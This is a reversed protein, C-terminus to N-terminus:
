QSERSSEKAWKVLRKITEPRSFKVTSGRRGFGPRYGKRRGFVCDAPFRPTCLRQYARLFRDYEWAYMEFTEDPFIERLHKRNVVGWHRGYGVAIQDQKVKTSHDQLYRLWSGKVHQYEDHQMDVMHRDAGKLQSPLCNQDKWEVPGVVSDLAAGFYKGGGGVCPHKIGCVGWAGDSMPATYMIAHWHVSGRAQIEMRWILTLPFRQLKRCFEKWVTRIVEPDQVPGPITYTCGFVDWGVPPRNQLLLLRFRRRSAKSFGKIKGRKASAFQETFTPVIKPSPARMIGGVDDFLQVQARPLPNHIRTVTM